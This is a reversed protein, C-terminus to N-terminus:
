KSKGIQRPNGFHVHATPSCYSSNHKNKNQDVLISVENGKKTPWSLNEESKHVSCDTFKKTNKNEFLVAKKAKKITICHPAINKM